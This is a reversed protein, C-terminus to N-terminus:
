RVGGSITHTGDRTDEQCRQEQMVRCPDDFGPRMTDVSELTILLRLQMPTVIWGGDYLACMAFVNKGDNYEFGEGHLSATEDDPSQEQDRQKGWQAEM